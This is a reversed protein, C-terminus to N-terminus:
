IINDDKKIFHTNDISFIIISICALIFSFMTLVTCQCKYLIIGSIIIGIIYSVSWILAIIISSNTRLGIYFLIIEISFVAMILILYYHSYNNKYIISTMYFCIISICVLSLGILISIWNM